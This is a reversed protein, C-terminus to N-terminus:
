EGQQIKVDASYGKNPFLRSAYASYMIYDGHM